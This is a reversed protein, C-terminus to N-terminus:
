GSGIAGHDRSLGGGFAESRVDPGDNLGGKGSLPVLDSADFYPSHDRILALERHWLDYHEAVRQRMTAMFHAEMIAHTEAFNLVSEFLAAAEEMIRRCTRAFLRRGKAVASADQAAHELRFRKVRFIRELKMIEYSIELFPSLCHRTIEYVVEVRKDPIRYWLDPFEGQVLGDRYLQDAIPTGTYVQLRNLLGLLFNIRLDLVAELNEKLIKLTTVPTFNIYTVTADIGLDDLVSLAQKVDAVSIGKNFYQLIGADTAELGLMIQRVGADHLRDYRPRRVHDARDSISLLVHLDRRTIEEVFEAVRREGPPGPLTFIDDILLLEDLGFQRALYEMEDVVNKVSRTRYAPGGPDKYFQRISCFSCNAYCGRSGALSIVGIGPLHEKIYPVYDRAPFPLADLDHILSRLENRVVQGSRRFAVGRVEKWDLGRELVQVLALLTEEGEYLVVSDLEPCQKLVDKYHFTPAYGGITMHTGPLRRRLAEALAYTAAIFSPDAITFGIVQPDMEVCRSVVEELSLAELQADIIAVAYGRSRLFAALYSLALSESGERFYSYTARASKVLLLQTM